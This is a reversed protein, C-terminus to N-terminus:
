CFEFTNIFKSGNYLLTFNFQGYQTLDLNLIGPTNTFSSYVNAPLDVIVANGGPNVISFLIVVMDGTSLNTSDVTLTYTVPAATNDFPPYKIVSYPGQPPNGPYGNSPPQLISETALSGATTNSRISVNSVYQDKAITGFM